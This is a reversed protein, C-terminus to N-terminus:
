LINPVQKEQAFILGGYFGMKIGPIHSSIM